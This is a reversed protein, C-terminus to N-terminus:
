RELCNEFTGWFECFDVIQDRNDFTRGAPEIYRIHVVRGDRSFLQRKWGFQFPKRYAQYKLGAVSQKKRRRKSGIQPVNMQSSSSGNSSINSSSISSSDFM